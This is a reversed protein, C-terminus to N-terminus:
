EVCRRGSLSALQVNDDADNQISADQFAKLNTVREQDLGFKRDSDAQTATLQDRKLQRDKVNAVLGFGQTFGDSFSSNTKLAM